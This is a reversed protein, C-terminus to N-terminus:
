RLRMEELNQRTQLPTAWPDMPYLSSPQRVLQGPDRTFSTMMYHFFGRGDHDQFIALPVKIYVGKQETAARNKAATFQDTDTMTLWAGLTFYKFSRRLEVRVGPDGALFRGIKLGGELGVQPLLQGYLNIFGTTFWRKPDNRLKFNDEIDRKRVTESEVGIGWRGDQFFRFLEGGFGAYASEFLGASARGQVGYPLRMHQDVALMALRPSSNQEYDAIDTRTADAEYAHFALEDWQNFLTIEYAGSLRAGQWLRYDGRAEVVGKFKFFGKKNNLFTRIRPAFSYSFRDEPQSYLPSANDATLFEQWHAPAKMDLDAFTLFTHKDLTSDLYARLNARSTRLSQTILGQTTLNLYFTTVRPPLLPEIADAIHALARADSLHVTNAAEIWV